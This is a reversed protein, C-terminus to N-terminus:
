EGGKLRSVNHELRTTLLDDMRQQIDAAVTENEIMQPISTTHIAYVPMRSEGTRQFPLIIGQKQPALFVPTNYKGTLTKKQGKFFTARVTYKKKSAPKVKPTMSFHLPTLRRGEYILQISNVTAKSIKYAGVTKAGAKAAKGAASVESSKINYVATVAKTIQAPARTKCDSITRDVAKQMNKNQAEIQETLTEFNPLNLALNVMFAEMAFFVARLNGEMRNEVTYM